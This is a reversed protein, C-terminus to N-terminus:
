EKQTSPFNGFAQSTADTPKWSPPSTPQSQPPTIMTSRRERKSFVTTRGADALKPISVLTSHLGPVISMERAAPRLKHKLRMKKMVKNTHKDPFMFMKKSLEGTDEFADEDEEPAAGSTAGDDLIGTKQLKRNIVKQAWHAVVKNAPSTATTTTMAKDVSITSDTELTEERNKL